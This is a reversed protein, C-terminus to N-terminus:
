PIPNEVKSGVIPIVEASLKYMVLQPLPGPPEVAIILHVSIISITSTEEYEQSFYMGPRQLLYYHGM